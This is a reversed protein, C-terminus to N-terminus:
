ALFPLAQDTHRLRIGDFAPQDVRPLWRQVLSRESGPDLVRQFVTAKTV